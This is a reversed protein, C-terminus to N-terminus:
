QNQEAFYHKAAYQYTALLHSRAERSINAKPVIRDFAHFAGEYLKFHVPVGADILSSVYNMTEDFFPEITGVYTYTPPLNHYDTAMIPVAYPYIEEGEREIEKLYMQWAVENYQATWVPADNDQASNTSTRHDLMPYLPMQFAINVEGRDRALLTLAATLGGGSSAGGVFLQDSRIGYESGHAKMWKLAQYADEIAAPFAAEGSLRYDVAVVVSGTTRIFDDIYGVDQEPAGLAYGGGHLWLLGPVGEESADWQNKKSYKALIPITTQKREQPWFVCLRLQTGDERPIWVERLRNPGTYRGKLVKQSVKSLGQLLASSAKPQLWRLWKGRQRLDPHIMDTTVKM